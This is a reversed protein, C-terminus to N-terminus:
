LLWAPRSYAGAVREDGAVAAILEQLWQRDAPVADAVLYVLYEGQVAESAMQRTRGHQFEEARIGIVRAGFSRAVEATRDLSGADVVVVEYEFDMEQARVGALCRHLNKEEDRAVIIISALPKSM